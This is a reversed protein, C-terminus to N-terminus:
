APHGPEFVDLVTRSYIELLNEIRPLIPTDLPNRLM